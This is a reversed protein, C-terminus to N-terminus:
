DLKGLLDLMDAPVDENVTKDWASRLAHGVDSDKSQVKKGTSKKVDKIKQARESSLAVDGRFAGFVEETM